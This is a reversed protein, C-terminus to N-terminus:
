PVLTPQYPSHALLNDLEREEKIAERMALRRQNDNKVRNSYFEKQKARCTRAKAEIQVLREYEGRNVTVTDNM